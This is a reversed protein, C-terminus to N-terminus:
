VSNLLFDTGEYTFYFVFIYQCFFELLCGLMLGICMYVDAEHFVYCPTLSSKKTLKLTLSLSHISEAVKIFRVFLNSCFSCSPFSFM